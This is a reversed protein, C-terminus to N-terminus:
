QVTLDTHMGGQYHGDVNCIIAYHGAALGDLSLTPTGGVAIDEVEDVVDLGDESVTTGTVTLNAAPTDTDLVVFEHVITGGNTIKFDVDGAPVTSKDLTISFETLAATVVTPGGGGCAAVILTIGAAISVRVLSRAM